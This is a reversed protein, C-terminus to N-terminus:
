ANPDLWTFSAMNAKVKNRLERSLQKIKWIGDSDPIFVCNKIGRAEITVIGSIQDNIDQIYDGILELYKRKEPNRLRGNITHNNSIGM